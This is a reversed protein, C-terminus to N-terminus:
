RDGHIGLKHAWILGEERLFYPLFCIIYIELIQDLQVLLTPTPM